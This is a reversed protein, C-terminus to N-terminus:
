DLFSHSLIKHYYPLVEDYLALFESPVDDRTLKTSSPQGFGTSQHVANYWASAWVGDIPKPGAPWSLMENTFPLNLKDCLGTLISKPDKILENANIVLPDEKTQEQFWDYLKVQHEFCLDEGTISQDLKIHSVIVEAPNRVLFIPRYNLIRNKNMDKVTNAMNKVFINGKMKEMEEIKDHIKNADINQSSLMIEDYHPQVKGIRKLWIPYFPEDIVVTDTRQNFSYM